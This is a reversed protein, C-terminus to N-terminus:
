INFIPFPCGAARLAVALTCTGAGLDLIVPSPHKLGEAIKLIKGALTAYDGVRFREEDFPVDEVVSGNWFKVVEGTTVPKYVLKKQENPGVYGYCRKVRLKSFHMGENQLFENLSTLPRPGELFALTKKYINLHPALWSATPSVM